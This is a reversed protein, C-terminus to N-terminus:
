NVEHRFLLVPPTQSPEIRVLVPMLRRFFRLVPHAHRLRIMIWRVDRSTAYNEIVRKVSGTYINVAIELGKEHLAKRAASIKQEALAEQLAWSDKEIVRRGEMMARTASETTVWYDQLWRWEDVPYPVLFIVRMGPKAIEKLYPIIEEIRDRRKLAVFIQEAM